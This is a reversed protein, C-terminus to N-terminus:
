RIYRLTKILAACLRPFRTILWLKKDSLMIKKRNNKWFNRLVEKNECNKVIYLQEHASRIRGKNLSRCYQVKQEDTFLPDILVRNYQLNLSAWYDNTYKPNHTISNERFRYYYSLTGTFSIRKSNSILPHMVYVDEYTKRVPFRINDFLSSKYLKNWVNNELTNEFLMQIAQHNDIFSVGHPLAHTRTQFIKKNFFAYDCVSIDSNTNQISFYLQELYDPALYDDSDVFAVYETDLLDLGTNRTCSLGENQSKHITTVRSDSNYKDCIEGSNDTSADDILILHFHPYTQQLISQICQDLYEAVNYVPVIITITYM